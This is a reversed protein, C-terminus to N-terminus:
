EVGRQVLLAEGNKREPLLYVFDKTWFVDVVTGPAVGHLLTPGCVVFYAVTVLGYYGKNNGFVVFCCDFYCAFSAAWGHPM